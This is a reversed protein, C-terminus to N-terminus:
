SDSNEKSEPVVPDNTAVVTSAVMLYNPEGENTHTGLLLSLEAANDGVPKSTPLWQCTLSPWELSHTMVIDYLYPSNKKWIKYESDILREQLVDAIENQTTAGEANTTM